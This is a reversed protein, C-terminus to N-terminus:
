QRLRSATKARELGPFTDNGADFCLGEGDLQYIQRTIFRVLFGFDIKLFDADILSREYRDSGDKQQM